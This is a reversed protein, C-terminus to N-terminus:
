SMLQGTELSITVTREYEIFTFISIPLACESKGIIQVSKPVADEAALRRSVDCIYYRYMHQFDTKSILGSTLGDVLGGNIANQSSLENQFQEFDYLENQVFMNVGALQINFDKFAILPSTTAPESAFPSLFPDTPIANAGAGLSNATGRIFPICIVTKPNPIGNTLLANFTLNADVDTRYQYIDRYVIKKTRNLSLYQEESVPNMTYIPVYLRTQSGWPYGTKQTNLSSRGIDLAVDATYTGNAVGLISTMIPAMGQNAEGSAVLIPSSGSATITASSQSMNVTNGAKVFSLTHRCTNVNIIFRLYAGKVLPMKDFFDHMDKLRITALIYWFHDTGTDPAPAPPRPREYYDKGVSGGSAESMFDSSPAAFQFSTTEQRAIFGENPKTVQYDAWTTVPGAVGSTNSTPTIDALLIPGGAAIAQVPFAGAAIGGPSALTTTTTATLTTANRNNLVGKGKRVNAGLAGTAVYDYSTSSDPYFGITPGIKKVDDKSFSTMMKYSVEFNTYPTLQVVNTNNYEVSVSHILHHFGNKLGVAFPADVNFPNVAGTANGRLTLVLPCQLYAESYSGYKGSNSLSSTDLQIQGSYNGNNQDIVYVVQRSIFPESTIQSDNSSEFLLQDAM